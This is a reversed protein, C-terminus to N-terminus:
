DQEIPEHNAHCAEACKLCAEACKKCHENEHKGCEEACMRCIKECILLFPLSIESNRKLLRAAQLCIDACDRDLQICRSMKKVQEEKLCSSACHECAMACELLSQLLSGNQM